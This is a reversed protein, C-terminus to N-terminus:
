PGMRQVGAKMMPMLLSTLPSGGVEMTMTAQDDKADLQISQMIKLMPEITTKVQPPMQGMMQTMQAVQQQAQTRFTDVATKIAAADKGKGQFSLQMTAGQKKGVLTITDFPVFLPVQRYSASMTAVSWMPAATDVTKILASLTADKDIGGKGTKLAAIVQDVPMAARNPGGVLVLKEDSYPIVAFEREMSFVQVGDQEQSAMGNQHMMAGLALRDYQGSAIIVVFGNDPNDSITQSVGVTLTDLRVNGIQGAIKVLGQHFTTVVQQRQEETIAQGGAIMGGLAQNLDFQGTTDMVVQGVVGVGAPLLWVDALRKAPDIAPTAVVASKLRALAVQAYEAEFPAKSDALKELTAAVDAQGSEGLARIAMLRDVQTIKGQTNLEAILAKAAAARQANDSKAAEELQPIVEPGAERIEKSVLDRVKASDSGLNEIQRSIDKAASGSAGAPALKEQMAAVTVVVGRQQWYADTSAYNLLQNGGGGSLLAMMIWSMMGMGM